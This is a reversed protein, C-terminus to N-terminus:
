CATCVTQQLPKRVMGPLMPEKAAVGGAQQTVRQPSNKPHHLDHLYTSYWSQHSAAPRQLVQLLRLLM